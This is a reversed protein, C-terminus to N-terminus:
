TKMWNTVWCTASVSEQGDLYPNFEWERSEQSMKCREWELKKYETIM